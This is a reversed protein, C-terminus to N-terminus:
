SPVQQESKWRTPSWDIGWCGMVAQDVIMFVPKTVM